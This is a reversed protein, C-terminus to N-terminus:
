LSTVFATLWRTCTHDGRESIDELNGLQSLTDEEREPHDDDHTDAGRDRGRADIGLDQTLPKLVNGIM